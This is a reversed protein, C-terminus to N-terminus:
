KMTAYFAKITDLLSPIDDIKSETWFEIQDGGGSGDGLPGYDVMHMTIRATKENILFSFFLENSKFVYEKSKKKFTTKLNPIIDREIYSIMRGVDVKDIFVTRKIFDKNNLNVVSGSNRYVYTTTQQPKVEADLQLGTLEVKKGPVSFLIPFLDVTEGIGSKFQAIKTWDRTFNFEDYQIIHERIISKGVVSRQVQSYSYDSCILFILLFYLVIKQKM